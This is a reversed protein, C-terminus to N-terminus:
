NIVLTRSETSSDVSISGFCSGDESRDASIIIIITGCPKTDDSESMNVSVSPLSYDDSSQQGGGGGDNGDGDDDSADDDDDGDSADFM